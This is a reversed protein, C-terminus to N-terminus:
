HRGNGLLHRRQREAPETSRGIQQSLLASAAVDVDADKDADDEDAGNDVHYDIRDSEKVERRERFLQGKWCKRMMWENDELNM